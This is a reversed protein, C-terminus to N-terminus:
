QKSHLFLLTFRLQKIFFFSNYAATFIIVVIAHYNFLLVSFKYALRFYFAVVFFYVFLNQMNHLNFTNFKFICKHPSFLFDRSFNYSFNLLDQLKSIFTFQAIAKIAAVSNHKQIKLLIIFLFM